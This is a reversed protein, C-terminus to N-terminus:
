GRVSPEPPWHSEHRREHERQHSPAHKANFNPNEIKSKQNSRLENPASSISSISSFFRVFANANLTIFSTPPQGLSGNPSRNSRLQNARCCRDPRIIPSRASASRLRFKDGFQAENNFLGIFAAIPQFQDNITLQHLLCEDLRKQEFGVFEGGDHDGGVFGGFRLDLPLLDMTSRRGKLGFDM